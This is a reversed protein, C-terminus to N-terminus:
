WGGRYYVLVIRGQALTEGLLIPEGTSTRAGVGALLKGLDTGVLIPRIDEQRTSIQM